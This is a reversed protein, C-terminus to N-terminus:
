NRTQITTDLGAANRNSYKGAENPFEQVFGCLSGTKLWIEHARAYKDNWDLILNAEWFMVSLALAVAGLIIYFETKTIPKKSVPNSGPNNESNQSSGNQETLRIM